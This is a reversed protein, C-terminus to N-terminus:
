SRRTTLVLPCFDAPRSGPSWTQPAPEHCLAIVFGLRDARLVPGATLAALVKGTMAGFAGAVLAQYPAAGAAAHRLANAGAPAAAGGGHAACSQRRIGACLWHRAPIPPEGLGVRWGGWGGGGAV